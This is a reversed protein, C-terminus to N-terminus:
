MDQSHDVVPRVEVDGLGPWSKALEIAQDLDAVEVIAFGGITEKAEMFPGDTVVAKDGRFRITTATAQPQLEEGSVYRGAETQERFWSGINAYARQRDAEPMGQWRVDDNIFMLMYKM